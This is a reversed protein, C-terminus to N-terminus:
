KDICVSIIRVFQISILLVESYQKMVERNDFSIQLRDEPTYIDLGMFGQGRADKPDRKRNINLCSKLVIERKPAARNALYKKETDFYVLKAPTEATRDYLVFFRKIMHNNKKIKKLMAKMLIPPENHHHSSSSSSHHHDDNDVASLAEEAPHANALHSSGGRSSSKDSNGGLFPLSIKKDTWSM